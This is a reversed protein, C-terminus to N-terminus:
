FERVRIVADASARGTQADILQRRQAQMLVQAPLGSTDEWSFYFLSIGLVIQEGPPVDDLTAAMALLADRMHQKLTAVRQLKKRHVRVVDEKPITQRFPSITPTNVLNIEATFVAGYNELYVGRANGLLLFADEPIARELRQDLRRELDAFVSRKIAGAPAVVPILALALIVSRM